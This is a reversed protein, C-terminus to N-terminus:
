QNETPAIPLVTTPWGASALDRAAAARQSTALALTRITVALLFGPNFYGSLPFHFPEVHEAVPIFPDFM